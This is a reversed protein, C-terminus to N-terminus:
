LRTAVIEGGAEAGLQDIRRHIDDVDGAAVLDRAFPTGAHRARIEEDDVLDVERPMDARAEVDHCAVGSHHATLPWEDERVELAAAAQFLHHRPNPPLHQALM